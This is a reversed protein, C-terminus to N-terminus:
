LQSFSKKTCSLQTCYYKPCISTVNSFTLTLILSGTILVFKKFNFNQFNIFCSRSDQAVKLRSFTFKSVLVLRTVLFKRPCRLKRPILASRYVFMQLVFFFPGAPFFRRNKRKSVRFNCKLHSIEGMSSLLPPM